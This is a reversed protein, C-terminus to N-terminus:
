AARRVRRTLEDGYTFAQDAYYSERDPNWGRMAKEAQRCDAIIYRLSSESCTKAHEEWKRFDEATAPGQTSM